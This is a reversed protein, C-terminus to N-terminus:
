ENTMASYITQAFLKSGQVNPHVGDFFLQPKNQFVSYMDVVQVGKNQAIQKTLPLIENDIVDARIQYFVKGRVEFVPPPTLIYVKPASPLSLYSDILASYDAVFEDRKWNNPKSDNSGLLVVVIDPNFDLSQRYLKENVFPCDGSKTATRNTYGYNNVCYRDGLMEALVRPYNNKRRGRVMCGYTISDGVCAVKIQGDKAKKQPHLASLLGYHGLVLVVVGALVAVAAVVIIAIEM